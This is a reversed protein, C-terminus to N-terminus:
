SSCSSRSPSHYAEGSSFDLAGFSYSVWWTGLLVSASFALPSHPPSLSPKKESLDDFLMSALWHWRGRRSGTTTRSCLMGLSMRTLSTTCVCLWCPPRIALTSVSLATISALRQIIAGDFHLVFLLFAGPTDKLAAHYLSILDQSSRM